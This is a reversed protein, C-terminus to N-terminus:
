VTDSNEVNLCRVDRNIQRVLGSLVKGAGVEVFTEVGENILNLISDSWRVPSSVQKTLAEKVREGKSIRNPPFM